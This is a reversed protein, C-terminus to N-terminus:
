PSRTKSPPCATVTKRPSKSAQDFITVAFVISLYVFIHYKIDMKNRRYSLPYLMQSRILPNRTRSRGPANKM